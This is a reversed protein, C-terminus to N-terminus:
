WTRFPIKDIDNNNDDNNDNNNSDNNNDNNDDDNNDNDDNAKLWTLDLRKAHSSPM